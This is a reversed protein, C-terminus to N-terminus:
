QPSQCVKVTLMVAGGGRGHYRRLGRGLGPFKTLRDVESKDGAREGVRM